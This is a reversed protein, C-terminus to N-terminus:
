ASNWAANVSFRAGFHCPRQGHGRCLALSRHVVLPARVTCTGYRALSRHALLRAHEAHARRVAFSGRAAHGGLARCPGAAHRHGTPRQADGDDAAAGAAQIGGRQELPEVGGTLYGEPLAAGGVVGEAESDDEGVLGEPPDLVGVRDDVTRELLLEYAPVVDVDDVATAGEGGAAVAEGGEAATPQQLDEVFAAGGEAHIEADAGRRRGGGFEGGRVVQDDGGVPHVAEGALRGGVSERRVDGRVAAAVDPEGGVEGEVGEAELDGLGLVARHLQVAVGECAVGAGDDDLHALLDPPGGTEVEAILLLGGVSAGLDEGIGEATARQVAVVRGPGSETGDDVVAPRVAVRHEEAVGGVGRVEGDAGAGFEGDLVSECEGGADLLLRAEFLREGRVLLLAARDDLGRLASGGGTQAPELVEAAVEVLRGPLEGEIQEGAAAPDGVVIQPQPVGREGVGDLAVEAARGGCRRHEGGEVQTSQGQAVPDDDRRHVHVGGLVADGSVKM